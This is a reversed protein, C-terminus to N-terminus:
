LRAYQSGYGPFYSWAPAPGTTTNALLDTAQNRAWESPSVDGGNVFPLPVLDDWLGIAATAAAKQADSFPTYGKGEGFHPNNNLSVAHNGTFFGYTIVGDTPVALMTGSDIHERVVNLNGILKGRYTDGAYPDLGRNPDGIAM